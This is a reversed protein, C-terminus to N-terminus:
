LESSSLMGMKIETRHYPMINSSHPYNFNSNIFGNYLNENLLEYKKADSLKYFENDSAFFNM